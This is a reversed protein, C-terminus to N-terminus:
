FSLKNPLIIVVTTGENYNSKILLSGQHLKIIEEVIALGLGSGSSKIDAKYFKQKIKVLDVERIGIGNDTVVVEVCDGVQGTTITILGGPKTFKIANDLVNLMVQLIRNYDAYIEGNNFSNAFSVTINKSKAKIKLQAITQEILENIDMYQTELIIATSQYRSFDLLEEVLLTLRDTERNVINLGMISEAKDELNGALITETWGKISTLPTRLEHSISSIFDNKMKDTKVIEAAMYDLTDALKKIEDNNPLVPSTINFNGEAMEAAVLTLDRIPNVISKSLYTSVLLGLLLVGIGILCAFLLIKIVLKDVEELSSTYRLVGVVKDDQWIPTAVAVIREGIDSTGRWKALEGNLAVKLEPSAVRKDPYFSSNDLIVRGLPDVVEVLALENKDINEFIYFAQNQLAHSPAYRHVFGSTVTAKNALAEEIGGYYYNILTFIFLGELLLIILLIVALYQSTLRRKISNM